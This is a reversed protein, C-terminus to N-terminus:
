ALCVGDKSITAAESRGDVFPKRLLTLIRCRQGFSAPSKTNIEMMANDKPQRTLRLM